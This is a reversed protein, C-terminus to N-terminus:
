VNNAEKLQKQIDKIINFVADGRPSSAISVSRTQNNVIMKLKFHNNGGSTITYEIKKDKLYKEVERIHKKSM